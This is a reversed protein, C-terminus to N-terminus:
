KQRDLKHNRATKLFFPPPKVAVLSSPVTVGSSVISHKSSSLLAQRKRSTRSLHAERRELLIHLFHWPLPRLLSLPDADGYDGAVLNALHGDKSSLFTRLSSQAQTVQVALGAEPKRSGGLYGVPQSGFSRRLQRQPPNNRM